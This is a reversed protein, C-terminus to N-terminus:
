NLQLVDLDMCPKTSMFHPLALITEHRQGGPARGIHWILTRVGHTTLSRKRRLLYTPLPDYDLSLRLPHITSNPLALSDRRESLGDLGIKRKLVRLLFPAACGADDWFMLMQFVNRHAM